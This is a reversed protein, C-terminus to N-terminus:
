YGMAFRMVHVRGDVVARAIYVGNPQDAMSISSTGAGVRIISRGQIDLIELDSMAVGDDARIQKNIPDFVLSAAGQSAATGLGTWVFSNLTVQDTTTGCPGNYCTWQLVNAGPLLGNMTTNPDTQDAITFAGVIVSWQCYQPWTYPNANMVATGPPAPITQDPGADAVPAAADFVTIAVENSTIPSGGTETVTWQWVNTGVCLDVVLQVPDVPNTSNGCGAILTWVGTGDPPIPSGQMTYYNVCLTTDPGADAVQAHSNTAGCLLLTLFVLARRTM